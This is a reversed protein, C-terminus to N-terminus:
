GLAARDAVVTLGDRELLSCPVHRSPPGLALGLAEAKGSGTVLLLRQRAGDLTARTLTIRDPPPKPSDHVGAVRGPADLVPNDPFLSATHGDEGIGLLAVDLVVDGLEREYARAAAEAGLEGAMRHTVARPAVLTQRLLLANSQPDDPGVCREDAFWLHVGQWDAVLPGLLAYAVRPTGGGSLAIHAAGRQTLAESIAGALIDAAREAAAQADPECEVRPGDSM